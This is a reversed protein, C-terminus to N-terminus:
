GQADLGNDLEELFSGQTHMVCDPDHLWIGSLRAQLFSWLELFDGALCDVVIESGGWFEPEEFLTMNMTISRGDSRWEAKWEWWTPEAPHLVRVNPFALIALALSEPSHEAIEPAWQSNTPENM